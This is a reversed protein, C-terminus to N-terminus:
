LLCEHDHGDTAVAAAVPNSSVKSFDPIIVGSIYTSPNGWIKRGKERKKSLM